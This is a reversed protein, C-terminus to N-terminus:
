LPIHPSRTFIKKLWLHFSAFRLRRSVRQRLNGPCCDKCLAVRLQERIHKMQHMIEACIPCIVLHEEVEQRKEPPVAEELYGGSIKKFERCDM